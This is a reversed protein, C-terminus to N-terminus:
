FIKEGMLFLALLYLGVCIITVIIRTGYRFDFVEGVFPIRRSGWVFILALTAVIIIIGALTEM